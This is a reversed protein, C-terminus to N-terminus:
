VKPSAAAKKSAPKKSATKKAAAKKAAPKKTAAKKVPKKGPKPPMAARVDILAAADALSITMGDETKPVTANTTSAAKALVLQPNGADGFGRSFVTTLGTYSNATAGSYTVRGGGMINVGLGSSNQSIAGAIDLRATAGGAGNNINLQSRMEIPVGIVDVAATNSNSLVKSILAAGYNGNNMILKSDAPTGAALTL